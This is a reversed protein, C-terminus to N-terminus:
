NCAVLCRPLLHGRLDHVLSKESRTKKTKDYVYAAGFHITEQEPAIELQLSRCNVFEDIPLQVYACSDMYADIFDIMSSVLSILAPAWVKTM